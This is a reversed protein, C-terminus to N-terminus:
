VHIHKDRQGNDLNVNIQLVYDNSTVISVTISYQFHSRQPSQLSNYVSHKLTKSYLILMTFLM